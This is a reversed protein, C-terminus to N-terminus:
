RSASSDAALRPKWLIGDLQAVVATAGPRSVHQPDIYWPTSGDAFRCLGPTCLLDALAAYRVGPADHM